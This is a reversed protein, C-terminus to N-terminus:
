HVVTTFQTTKTQGSVRLTMTFTVSRGKASIPIVWFCQIGTPFYKPKGAGAGGGCTARNGPAKWNIEKQVGSPYQLRASQSVGFTEGAVATSYVPKGILILRGGQEPKITRKYPASVVSGDSGFSITESARLTKGVWTLAIPWTCVYGNLASVFKSKSPTILSAGVHATCIVRGGLFVDGTQSNKVKQLMSFTSGAVPGGKTVLTSGDPVPKGPPIPIGVTFSGASHATGGPTTVSILGTTAGSPVTTSIQTSSNVTFTANTGNFAVATAGGFNAGNITVATGAPGNGPSFGGITPAPPPTLTFSFVESFLQQCPCNVHVQWYYTGPQPTNVNASSPCFPGPLPNGNQDIVSTCNGVQQNIVVQSLGQDKAIVIYMPFSCGFPVCGFNTEWTFNLQSGGQWASSSQDLPTKLHVHFDDATRTVANPSKTASHNAASGALQGVLFFIGLSLLVAVIWKTRPM